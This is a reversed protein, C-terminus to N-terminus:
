SESPRELTYLDQSDENRSGRGRGGDMCINRRGAPWSYSINKKSLLWWLSLFVFPANVSRRRELTGLGTSVNRGFEACM